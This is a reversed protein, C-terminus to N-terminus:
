LIREKIMPFPLTKAKSRYMDYNHTKNALTCENNSCPEDCEFARATKGLGHDMLAEDACHTTAASKVDQSDPNTPGHGLACYALTRTQPSWGGM